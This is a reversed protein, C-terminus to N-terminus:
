SSLGIATLPDIRLALRVSVLGGVPGILLLAALAGAVASGTFVIPVNGPLGLALLLTGITGIGVGLVTVIIIQMLIAVAVTRSPSGIAKLVGIQAVKQLTQIQFFGGVVLVGILLTFAQQTNLTNQQASYGPLALIATQKDSVEIGDVQESIRSAVLASEQPNQLKVAFINAVVEANSLEGSGQPRVKNWTTLSVMIAPQYFYQREDTIGSVELEYFEEKTAQITKVIIKDGVRIGNPRAVSIDIVASNNRKVLLGQGELLEPDGPRGPDVGILSVDVPDSAVPYVLTATAFALPGVDAVGKVRRIDAARSQGMRSSTSQLDVNEQFVLLDADLKDIFQRNANALGGALAAIFLVLITILGIVLSFLLYRGRNRWVEKFSLYLAM